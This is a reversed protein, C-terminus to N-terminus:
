QKAPFIFGTEEYHETLYKDIIFRQILTAKGISFQKSLCEIEKLVQFPIEFNNVRKIPTNMCDICVANKDIQKAFQKIEYTLWIRFDTKKQKFAIQNLSKWDSETYSLKIHYVPDM